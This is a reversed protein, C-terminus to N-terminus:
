LPIGAEFRSRLDDKDYTTDLYYHPNDPSPWDGGWALKEDVGRGIEGARLYMEEADSEVDMYEGDVFIGIDIAIAFNHWSQGARAKTVIKGPAERGQRFLATQEAYSRTGSLVKVDLGGEILASLLRRALSQMVPLVTRLNGETRGDFEGHEDRIAVFRSDWLKAAAETKPGWKGDLKGPNLGAFAYLRQTFIVDSQFLPASM